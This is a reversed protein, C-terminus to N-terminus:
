PQEEEGDESGEGAWGSTDGTEFGEEFILSLGEYSRITDSAEREEQVISRVKVHVRKEGPGSTLMWPIEREYTQWSSPPTEGDNWLMM